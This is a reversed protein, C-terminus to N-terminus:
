RWPSCCAPVPAPRSGLGILFGDILLDIAVAIVMSAGVEGEVEAERADFMARVTLMLATGVAFGIAAGIPAHRHMIDPPFETTLAALVVGGAFHQLYSTLQREPRHLAAIGGGILLVTAPLLAYTTARLVTGM